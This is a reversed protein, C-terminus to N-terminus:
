IKMVMITYGAFLKIHHHKEKIGRPARYININLTKNKNMTLMHQFTM